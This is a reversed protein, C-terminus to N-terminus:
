LGKGLVIIENTNYIKLFNILLASVYNNVLAWM